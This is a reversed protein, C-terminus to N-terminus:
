VMNIFPPYVILWDLQLRLTQNLLMALLGFHYQHVRGTDVFSSSHAYSRSGRKSVHILKLGPM